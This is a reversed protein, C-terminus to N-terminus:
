AQRASIAQLGAETRLLVLRKKARRVRPSLGELTGGLAQLNM